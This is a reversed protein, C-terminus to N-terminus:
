AGQMDQWALTRLEFWGFKALVGCRRGSLAFFHGRSKQM